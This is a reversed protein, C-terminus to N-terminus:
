KLVLGKATIQVRDADTQLFQELYGKAAQQLNAQVQANPKEQLAMQTVAMFTGLIAFQEFLEQKESDSAQAIKPNSGLIQRMQNVLPKFNSDPFDANRYAMYSGALFTAMGSALDNPPVGLQRMLQPHRGLMERFVREAQPRAQAPYSAAVKSPVTSSEPRARAVLLPQYPTTSSGVSGSAASTKSLRDKIIPGMVFNPNYMAANFQPATMMYANAAQDQAVVRSSVSGLAAALAIIGTISGKM